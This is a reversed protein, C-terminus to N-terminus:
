RSIDGQPFSFPPQNIMFVDRGPVQLVDKSQEDTRNFAVTWTHELTEIFIYLTHMNLM